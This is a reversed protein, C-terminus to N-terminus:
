GIAGSKLGSKGAILVDSPSNDENVAEMNVGVESAVAYSSADSTFVVEEVSLKIGYMKGM